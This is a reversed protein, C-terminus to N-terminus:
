EGGNDYLSAKYAIEGVNDAYVGVWDRRFNGRFMRRVTYTDDPALVVHVAWGRAVPLVVGAVYPMGDRYALVRGWRLGSIAMVNGIGIQDLLVRPSCERLLEVAYVDAVRSM